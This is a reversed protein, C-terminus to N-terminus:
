RLIKKLFIINLAYGSNYYIQQKRVEKSIWRGMDRDRRGNDVFGTLDLRMGDRSERAFNWMRKVTTEIKWRSTHRGSSVRQSAIIM